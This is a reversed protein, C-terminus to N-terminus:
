YGLGALLNSRRWHGANRVDWIVYGSVRFGHIGRPFSKRMEYQGHLMSRAAGYPVFQMFDMGRTPHGAARELLFELWRIAKNDNILWYEHILSCSDLRSSLLLHKDLDTAQLVDLKQCATKAKLFQHVPFLGVDAEDYYANAIQSGFFFFFFFFFFLLLLLLLECDAAGKRDAADLDV